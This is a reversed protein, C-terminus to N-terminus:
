NGIKSGSVSEPYLRFGLLKPLDLKVKAKTKM